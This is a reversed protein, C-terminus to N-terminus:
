AEFEILLDGKDVTNGESVHVSKVIGDRPSMLANEMKMAELVCLFEGEQVEQGESVNVELILGPMPAHIENIQSEEGLSLGMEAILEDLDNEINVNYVNGNIKLQYKRNHFDQELIEVLISKNEYVIHTKEVTTQDTPIDSLIDLSNIEKRLLSFEFTNNVIAKYKSEMRLLKSLSIIQIIIGCPM